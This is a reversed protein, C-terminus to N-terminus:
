FTFYQISEILDPITLHYFQLLKTNIKPTLVNVINGYKNKM